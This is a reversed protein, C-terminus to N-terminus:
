QEYHARAAALQELVGFHIHFRAAALRRLSTLYVPTPDSVCLLPERCLPLCTPLGHHPWCWGGGMVWAPSDTAASRYPEQQHTHPEAPNLPGASRISIPTRPKPAGRVQHIYEFTACHAHRKGAEAGGYLLTAHCRPPLYALGAQLDSATLWM